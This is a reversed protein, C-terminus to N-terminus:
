RSDGPLRRVVRGNLLGAARPQAVLGLARGAAPRSCRRTLKSHPPAGAADGAVGVRPRHTIPLSAVSQARPASAACGLPRARGAALRPSHQAGAEQCRQELTNPLRRARRVSIRGVRCAARLRAAHDKALRSSAAGSEKRRALSVVRGNLPRGGAAVTRTSGSRRRGTRQLPPNPPTQMLHKAARLAHM